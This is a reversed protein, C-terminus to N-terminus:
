TDGAGDALRERDGTVPVCVCGGSRGETGLMGEVAELASM